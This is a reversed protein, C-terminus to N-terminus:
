DTLSWQVGCEISFEKARKVNGSFALAAIAGYLASAKEKKTHLLPNNLIHERMEALSMRKAM